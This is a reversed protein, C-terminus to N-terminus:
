NLQRKAHFKLRSELGHKIKPRLVIQNNLTLVTVEGKLRPRSRLILTSLKTEIEEEIVRRLPRAGLERDFGKQALLKIVASQVVLHIKEPWLRKKLDEIMLKTIEAVSELSLPKFVITKDVRNLFEPRFFGKLAKLTKEKIEAYRKDKSFEEKLGFGISDEQSFEAAGLNSTMILITNKFNVPRGKADTLIGDELISLLINQVDPHAKEIEDFLILCYPHQRVADTLKGGEEFGVYGPPAGVLRSVNHKEMFESMDLRILNERSGFIEEALVRATETKGVGTPGLFIFSAIPRNPNSIGATSRQVAEAVVRVAEEQGIIRKILRKELNAIQAVKKSNLSSLPIGTWSSLVKEVTKVSLIPRETENQSQLLLLKKLIFEERDRYRLAEDYMEKRVMEEKLLRVRSLELRLDEKEKPKQRNSAAAAAEDILDIAKDPLFRNQIYRKSLYAATKLTENNIKVKHYEEYKSRLGKLIEVTEEVSPEEILIPQLRRELAKDKEIYKRYEDPTTAGILHLEGRALAPKLINAADLAGEPNGAGVLTHIEDAFLIINKFQVIEELLKKLREEFQGRFVTGAVLLGMDLALVRFVALKEPVKGQIIKQAIGEAIATKGVGPEGILVPNNKLRRSLILLCREIEKDRGIVPDLKGEKAQKTLDQTFYQLAPAETQATSTNQSNEEQEEELNEKPTLSLFERLFPHQFEEEIEARIDSPFVGIRELIELARNQNDLIIALLLHEAEVKAHQWEVMIKFSLKLVRKLEESLGGRPTQSSIQALSRVLRIQETSVGCSSLVEFALTGPTLTLSLLLHEVEVGNKEADALRQANLLVRRSIESFSQLM